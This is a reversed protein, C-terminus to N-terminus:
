RDEIKGARKLRDHYEPRDRWKEIYPEYAPSDWWFESDPDPVALGGKYDNGAISSEVTQLWTEYYDIM